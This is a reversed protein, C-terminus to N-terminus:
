ACTLEVSNSDCAAKLLALLLAEAMQVQEESGTLFVKVVGGGEGGRDSIETDVQPLLWPAGM